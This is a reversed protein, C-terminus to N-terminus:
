APTSRPPAPAARPSEVRPKPLAAPALAAPPATTAAPAPLTPTQTTVGESQEVGGTAVGAAPATPPAASRSPRSALFAGAAGVTICSAATVAVPPTRIEM